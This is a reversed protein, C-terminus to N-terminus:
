QWLSKGGIFTTKINAKKLLSLKKMYSRHSRVQQPQPSRPIADEGQGFAYIKVRNRGDTQNSYAAIHILDQAKMEALLKGVTKPNCQTKKALELRSAPRDMLAKFVQVADAINM